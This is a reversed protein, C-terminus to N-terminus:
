SNSFKKILGSAWKYHSSTCSGLYAILTNRAMWPQLGPKLLAEEDTENIISMIQNQTRAFFKLAENYSFNKYQEYIADNLLPLQNWKFGRGPVEPTINQLGDMYWSIVMNQWEALHCIIDKVSWKDCAGPLLAKDKDLLSILNDLKSKEIKIEDLLQKKSKYKSM